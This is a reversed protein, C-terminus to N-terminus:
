GMVNVIGPNVLGVPDCTALVSTAAAVVSLPPVTIPAFAAPVYGAIRVPVEKPFAAGVMVSLLVALSAADTVMLMVSVGTVCTGFVPLITMVSVPLPRASAFEPDTVAVNLAGDDPVGEAVAASEPDPDPGKTKVTERPATVAM